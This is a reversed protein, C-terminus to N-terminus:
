KILSKSLLGDAVIITRSSCPNTQLNHSCHEVRKRVNAFLIDGLKDRNVQFRVEEM